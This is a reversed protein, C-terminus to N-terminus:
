GAPRTLRQLDTFTLRREFHLETGFGGGELEQQGVVRALRKLPRPIGAAALLVEVEQGHALPSRLVLGAGDESLDVAAACLDPGVGLSGKRCEVQAQRVVQYRRGRRRDEPAPRALAPTAEVPPPPTAEPM